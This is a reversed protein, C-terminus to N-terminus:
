KLRLLVGWHQRNFDQRRCKKRVSCDAHRSANGQVARHSRSLVRAENLKLTRRTVSQMVNGGITDFKSAPIDVDVVVDCHSATVFGSALAATRWESYNKLPPNSRSYCLLDGVRPSVLQPDCPVYAYGQNADFAAKIYDSHTSSYRFQRETLGAHHMLYSIFAASWPSDNLAARVAAERLAYAASGQQKELEPLLTGLSMEKPAAQASPNDLLGPVYVIKRDATEGPANRNLVVWYEWVRRWAFRGETAASRRGSEADQLLETESEVAGFRVLYGNADIRHGGFERHERLALEAIRAALPNSAAERCAADM